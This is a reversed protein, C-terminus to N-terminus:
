EAAPAEAPAEAPADAPKEAPAEEKKACGVVVTCALACALLFKTMEREEMIFSCRGSLTPEFSFNLRAEELTEVLECVTIKAFHREFIM